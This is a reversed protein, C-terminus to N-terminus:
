DKSVGGTRLNWLAAALGRAGVVLAVGLCLEFITTILVAKEQPDLEGYSGYPNLSFFVFWRVAAGLAGSLVWVGIGILGVHLWDQSRAPADGVVDNKPSPLLKRAITAPFFWLYVCLSLQVFGIFATLRVTAPDMEGFRGFALVIGQSITSWAWVVAVLRLAVVVIQHPTM